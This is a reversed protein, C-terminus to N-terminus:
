LLGAMHSGSVGNQLDPFQPKLSQAYPLSCHWGLEGAPCLCRSAPKETRRESGQLCLRPTGHPNTGWPGRMECPSSSPFLHEHSTEGLAWHSSGTTPMPLGGNHVM